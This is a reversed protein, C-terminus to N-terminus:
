RNQRGALINLIDGEMTGVPQEVIRGEEKGNRLIIFTPVRAVAYQDALADVRRSARDVGHLRIREAPIGALDAIKLFRPVERKSDGCWTGFIVLFEAEEHALRLLEIVDSSVQATDYTVAFPRYEPKMMFSRDVPGLEMPEPPALTQRSGACSALLLPFITLIVYHAPRPM